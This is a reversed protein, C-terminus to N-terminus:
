KVLKCNHLYSLTLLLLLLLLIVRCWPTCYNHHTDTTHSCLIGHEIPGDRTERHTHKHIYVYKNLCTFTIADGKSELQTQTQAHSHTDAQKDNHSIFEKIMPFKQEDNLENRKKIIITTAIATPKAAATSSTTTTTCFSRQQIDFALAAAVYSQSTSHAETFTGYVNNSLARVCARVCQPIYCVDYITTYRM